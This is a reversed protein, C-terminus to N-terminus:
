KGFQMSTFTCYIQTDLILELYFIKRFLSQKLGAMTLLIITVPRACEMHTGLYFNGLM